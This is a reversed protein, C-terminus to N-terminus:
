KIVYILLIAAGIVLLAQTSLTKTAPPAKGTYIVSLVREAKAGGEDIIRQVESDSVGPHLGSGVENMDIETTIKSLPKDAVNVEIEPTSKAVSIKNVEVQAAVAIKAVPAPATFPIKPIDKVKPAQAKMYEKFGAEIRIMEERTKGFPITRDVSLTQVPESKKHASPLLSEDVSPEIKTIGMPSTKVNIVNRIQDAVDKKVVNLIKETAKVPEIFSPQTIPLPKPKAKPVTIPESKKHPSPMLSEDVMPEKKTIGLPSTSLNLVKRIEEEIDPVSVDLALKKSYVGYMAGMIDM